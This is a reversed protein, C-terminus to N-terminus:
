APRRVLPLEALARWGTPGLAVVHLASIRATLPLRAATRRAIGAAAEPAAGLAVTVHVPPDTGFRGGYPVDEPFAARVATAAASLGPVPVGVFGGEHEVATLEAEIRGQPLAARLRRLAPEDVRDAALWPYPLAAHAPVGPRVARADVGAALELLPEAEPLLALVATTGTEAM